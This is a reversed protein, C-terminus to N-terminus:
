ELLAATLGACVIAAAAALALAAGYGQTADFMLGALWPGALGAVGWATFVRGFVRPGASEGYFGSAAVPYVTILAGYAFGIAALASLAQGPAQALMLLMVGAASLLATSVLVRRFPWRDALWGGALSGLGNGIAIVAAGLAVQGAEGGIAAMIGGAHGIVMLGAMAGALYGCWLLGQTRDLAPPASAQRSFTPPAFPASRFLAASVACSLLLVAALWLLAATAGGSDAAIALLPAALAAGGAYTATVIGVALGRRAPWAAAAREIALAYGLGDALGFLVGYGLWASATSAALAAVALGVAGVVGLALALFAPAVRAFARHSVLVAVTIMVIATAYILSVAGRSAGLAQELPALLVSFAHLTGFCGNLLAAGALTTLSRRM